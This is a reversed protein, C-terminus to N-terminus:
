YAGKKSLISPITLAIIKIDNLLTRNEVYYEDLAIRKSYSTDSRGSIQWLGTIGPRISFIKEAKPGFHKAIEEKVVPRPGVVSLDGKLVNWFQPLEDMSSKRLFHGIPTVRPDNKLKHTRNWEDNKEPDNVLIEELISDANQYMTRFKYCRFHSGGRGIRTQYYIAKGKSTAKILIAIVLFLPSILILVALSFIIDLARKFPLSQYKYPTCLPM